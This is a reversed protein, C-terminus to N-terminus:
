GEAESPQRVISLGIVRTDRVSRAVYIAACADCLKFVETEGGEFTATAVVTATAPPDGEKHTDSYGILEQFDCFRATESTASV